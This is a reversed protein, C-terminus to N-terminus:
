ANNEEPIQPVEPTKVALATVGPPFAMMVPAASQVITTEGKIKMQAQDHKLALDAFIAKLKFLDMILTLDGGDQQDIFTQIKAVDAELSHKRAMIATRSIQTAGLQEIYKGIIAQNKLGGIKAVVMGCENAAKEAQALTILDKRPRRKRDKQKLVIPGSDMNTSHTPEAPAETISITLM